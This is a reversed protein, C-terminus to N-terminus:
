PTTWPEHTLQSGDMWFLLFDFSTSGPLSVGNGAVTITDGQSLTGGGDVDLWTIRYVNRGVTLNVAVGSAAFDTANGYSSGVELNFRYSAISASQSADAISFTTNYTGASYSRIGAFAVTPPLATHSGLLGSAMVYLVAALVVTIAVLLLEAVVPSVGESHPRLIDKMSATGDM